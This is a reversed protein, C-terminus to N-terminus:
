LNNDNMFKCIAKMRKNNEKIWRKEEKLPLDDPIISELVTKSYGKIPTSEGIAIVITSVTIPIYKVM